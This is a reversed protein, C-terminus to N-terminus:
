SQPALTRGSTVTSGVTVADNPAGNAPPYSTASRRARLDLLRQGRAILAENGTPDFHLVTLSAHKTFGPLDGALLAVQARAEHLSGILLANEYRAAAEIERDLALVAEGLEGLEARALAITRRCRLAHAVSEMGLDDILELAIEACRIAEAPERAALHTDALGAFVAGRLWHEQDGLEELVQEFTARAAKLDGRLREYEARTHSVVLAVNAGVEMQRTLEDICRQLNLVDHSLTCPLAWAMPRAIQAGWISGAALAELEARADLESARREEGRLRHDLIRLQLVHPDFMRLDLAEVAALSSELQDRQQRYVAVFAQQHRVVAEFVRKEIPRLPTLRDTRLIHLIQEGREPLERWRGNTVRWLNEVFLYAAYAIRRKDGALPQLAAIMARLRRDDNLLLATTAVATVTIVFAKIADIPSPGRRRRPTSIWSVSAASLGILLALTSGVFPRLRDAIDLGARERLEAVTADGYRVGASRDAIGGAFVVMAQLELRSAVRDGRRAYVEIAARLPAIADSFSEADFLRRGARELLVAGREEDGGHLYHWGVELEGDGEADGRADLLAALARHMATRREPAIARLVTERLPDNRFRYVEDAGSVVEERVLEDLAEFVENEDRADRDAATCVDLPVDGGHVAIVEALARARPGLSDIRMQLAAALGSPVEGRPLEEPLLWQAGAFRVIGRGVLHNAVELAHLPTGSSVDHLWRAFGVVNRIDGFLARALAETGQPTLARLRLVASAGRMAAVAQAARPAKDARLALLLVLSRRSAFHALAGLVAASAEDARHLDDVVIALPHRATLELIWRVLAHQVQVRREAPESDPDVGAPGAIGLATRLEPLVRAIMASHVRATAITDDPAIVLLERVIVRLLAYPGRDWRTGAARAVRLGALQAELAGERLLRSKGAGPPAEILLVAGAGRTAGEVAERMEALEADRGILPASALHGRADALAAPAFPLGGIVSLREIVEAASSPRALPDLALMSVVLEDLARPLDPVLESPPPVREKWAAELAAVNRAPYAHRATLLRFALAGLGYIDSRQDLPKGYVAEPPVHPLTGALESISGLTALIGFDILKASGDRHLRVNRAAVDRHVVGRAHLLALASAVDRLLQCARSPELPELARLEPGELLEMTYFDGAPDTGYDFVRVIAPHHLQALTHFERRFRVRDRETFAGSKPTALRKLAKTEGTAIDRVRLVTAMGGRGLEDEVEYRSAIV